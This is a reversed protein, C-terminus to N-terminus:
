TNTKESKYLWDDDDQQEDYCHMFGISFDHRGICFFLYIDRKGDESMKEEVVFFAGLHWAWAKDHRFAFRYKGKRSM